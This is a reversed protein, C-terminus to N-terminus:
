AEFMGDRPMAKLAQLEIQEKAKKAAAEDGDLVTKVILDKIEDPMDDPLQARLDAERLKKDSRLEEWTYRIGGNEAQVHMEKIRLEAYEEKSLVEFEHTNQRPILAALKMHNEEEAQTVIADFMEGTNRDVVVVLGVAKGDNEIIADVAEVTNPMVATCVDSSKIEQKDGM